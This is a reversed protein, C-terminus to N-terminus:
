NDICPSIAYRDADSLAAQFASLIRYDVPIPKQLNARHGSFLWVSWGITLVLRRALGHDRQRSAIVVEPRVTSPKTEFSM